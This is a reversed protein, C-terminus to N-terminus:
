VSGIHDARTKKKKKGGGMEKDVCRSFQSKKKCLGTFNGFRTLRSCPNISSAFLSLGSPWSSMLDLVRPWILGLPCSPPSSRPGVTHESLLTIFIFTPRRAWFYVPDIASLPCRIFTTPRPLCGNLWLTERQSNTRYGPSAHWRSVTWLHATMNTSLLRNHKQFHPLIHIM